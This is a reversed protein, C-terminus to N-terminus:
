DAITADKDLIMEMIPKMRGTMYAFYMEDDYNYREKVVDKHTLEYEIDEVVSRYITM